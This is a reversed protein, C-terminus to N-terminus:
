PAKKKKGLVVNKVAKVLFDLIEFFSFISFGLFLGLTGGISSLKEAFSVREKRVIKMSNLSEFYVNVAGMDSIKRKTFADLFRNPLKTSGQAADFGLLYRCICTHM